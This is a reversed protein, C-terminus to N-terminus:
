KTRQSMAEIIATMLRSSSGDVSSHLVRQMEGTGRNFCVDLSGRDADHIAALVADTNVICRKDVRVFSKPLVAELRDFLLPVNSDHITNPSFLYGSGTPVIFQLTTSTSRMPTTLTNIMCIDDLRIAMDPVLLICGKVDFRLLASEM